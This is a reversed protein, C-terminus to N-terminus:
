DETEEGEGEPEPPEPLSGLEKAILSDIEDLQQMGERIAERNDRGLRAIANQTVFDFIWGNVDPSEKPPNGVGYEIVVSDAYGAKKLLRKVKKKDIPDLPSAFFIADGPCLIAGLPALSSFLGDFDGAASDFDAM